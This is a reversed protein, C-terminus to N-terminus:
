SDILYGIVDITVSGSATAGTVVQAVFIRDAPTSDDGDIIVIAGSAVVRMMSGVATISSLDQADKWVPTIAAAGGGFNVDTMGALSATNSRVVLEVIVAKKGAPVHYLQHVTPADPEPDFTASGLVNLLGELMGQEVAEATRGARTYKQM